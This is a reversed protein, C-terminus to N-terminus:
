LTSRGASLQVEIQLPLFVMGKELFLDIADAANMNNAAHQMVFKAMATSASPLLALVKSEALPGPVRPKSAVRSPRKGNSGRKGTWVTSQAVSVAARVEAANAEGVVVSGSTSEMAATVALGSLELGSV